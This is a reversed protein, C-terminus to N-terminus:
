LFDKWFIAAGQKLIDLEMRLRENERRLHHWEVEEPQGYGKGSFAADQDQESEKERRRLITDRIGL